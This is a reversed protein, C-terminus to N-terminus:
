FERSQYSIAPLTVGLVIRNGSVPTENHDILWQKNVHRSVMNKFM